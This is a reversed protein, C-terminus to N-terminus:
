LRGLFQARKSYLWEVLLVLPVAKMGVNESPQLNRCIEVSPLRLARPATRAGALPALFQRRGIRPM